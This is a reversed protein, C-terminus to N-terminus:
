VKTSVIAFLNDNEKMKNVNKRNYAGSKQKRYESPIYKVWIPLEVREKHRYLLHM